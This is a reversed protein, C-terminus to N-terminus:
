PNSHKIQDIILLALLSLAFAAFTSIIVIISRRPVSKKESKVAKDVIFIQPLTQEVNVKSAVLKAKLLGLREIESEMKQSLENYLVGLQRIKQLSDSIMRIENGANNYEKEVLNYAEVARERQINHITTDIYAAIENAIDAAMQPDADLVSIEISMFETRRFRINSKYKKELKTYPFPDSLDIEYHDMLNFKQIVHDKIQNSHLIQLMREAEDDEGFSLVDRFDTSISSTEVLSKSLSVSAAPFLVVNSKFRPTILLSVVISAIFAISSLLILVYRKKWMYTILDFTNGVPVKNSAKQEM